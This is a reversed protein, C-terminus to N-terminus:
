ASAAIVRLFLNLIPSTLAIRSHQPTLPMQGTQPPQSGDAPFDQQFITRVDPSDNANTLTNLDYISTVNRGAGADPGSKISDHRKVILYLSDHTADGWVDGVTFNLNDGPLAEEGALPLITVPQGAHVNGSADVTFDLRRVIYQNDGDSDETWALAGKSGDATMHM